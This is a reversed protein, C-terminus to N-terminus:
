VFQIIYSSKSTSIGMIMIRCSSSLCIHMIFSLSTAHQTVVSFISVKLIIVLLTKSLHYIQMKLQMQTVNWMEGNMTPPWWRSSRASSCGPPAPTWSRCWGRTSWCGWRGAWRGASRHTARSLGLVRTMSASNGPNSGMSVLCRVLFKTWSDCM